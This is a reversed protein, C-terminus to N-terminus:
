AGRKKDRKIIRKDESIPPPAEKGILKSISDFPCAEFCTGCKICKEQNIIHVLNKGGNIADVPCRRSCIGCAKCKDPEIYYSPVTNFMDEIEEVTFFNERKEPDLLPTGLKERKCIKIYPTLKLLSNFKAKTEEDTFGESIGLKGIERIKKTFDDVTDAFKNGDAASMFEIRIRDPNIGNYRLINKCLLVMNLAHYNGNTTYNCEDLKCAGIYVGDAGNLFSKFVFSLDVRGSCM